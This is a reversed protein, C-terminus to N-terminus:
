FYRRPRGKGVKRSRQQTSLGLTIFQGQKGHDKYWEKARDEVVKLVKNGAYSVLVPLVYVYFLHGLEIAGSSKRAVKGIHDVGESHRLYKELSLGQQYTGRYLEVRVYVAEDGKHKIRRRPPLKGKFERYEILVSEVNRSKKKAVM